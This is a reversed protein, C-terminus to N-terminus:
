AEGAGAWVSDSLFAAAMEEAAEAYHCAVKVGGLDRLEPTAERCKQQVFPCRDAFVCSSASAGKSPPRGPISMLPREPERIDPFSRRLAM